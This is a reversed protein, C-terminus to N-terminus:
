HMMWISFSKIQLPLPLLVACAADFVHEAPLIIPQHTRAM